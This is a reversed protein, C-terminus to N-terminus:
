VLFDDESGNQKKNKMVFFCVSGKIPCICPAVTDDTADDLVEVYESDRLTCTLLFDYPNRHNLECKPNM